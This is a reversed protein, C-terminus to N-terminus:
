PQKPVRKHKQQHRNKLHSSPLYLYLKYYFFAGLGYTWLDFSREAILLM